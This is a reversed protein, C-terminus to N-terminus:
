QGKGREKTGGSHLPGSIMSAVSPVHGLTPNKRIGPLGKIGRQDAAQSLGLRHPACQMPFLRVAKWAASGAKGGFQAVPSTKMGSETKCFLYTM